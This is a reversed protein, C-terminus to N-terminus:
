PASWCCASPRSTCCISSAARRHAEIDRAQAADLTSNFEARVGAQKLTAVQDQMLAILPSVVIGTGPRAIASDPFVAVQRRRHAHAGARRRRGHAIGIVEEQPGRFHEYGFVSHLIHRPQQDM